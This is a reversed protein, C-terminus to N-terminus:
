LLPPAERHPYTPTQLPPSTSPRSRVSPGPLPMWAPRRRVELVGLVWMIAPVVSAALFVEGLLLAASTTGFHVLVFGGSLLLAALYEPHYFVWAASAVIWSLLVGLVLAVLLFGYRLLSPVFPLFSLVTAIPSLIMYISLTLGTALLRWLSFSDNPSHRVEIKM